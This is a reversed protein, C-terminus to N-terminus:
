KEKVEKGVEISPHLIAPGMGRSEQHKVASARGETMSVFGIWFMMWICMTYVRSKTLISPHEIILSSLM